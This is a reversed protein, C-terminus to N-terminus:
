FIELHNDLENNNINHIFDSGYLVHLIVYM